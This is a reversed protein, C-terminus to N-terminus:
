RTHEMATGSRSVSRSVVIILVERQGAEAADAVGLTGEVVQITEAPAHPPPMKQMHLQVKLWSM